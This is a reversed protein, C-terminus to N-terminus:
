TLSLQTLAIRNACQVIGIWECQYFRLLSSRHFRIKNVNISSITIHHHTTIRSSVCLLTNSTQAAYKKQRKRESWVLITRMNIFKLQFVLPILKVAYSSFTFRGVILLFKWFCHVTQCPQFYLTLILLFFRISSNLYYTLRDYYYYSFSKKQFFFCVCTQGRVYRFFAAVNTM